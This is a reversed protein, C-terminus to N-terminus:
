RCVFYFQFADAVLEGQANTTIHFASQIMFNNDPGTGIFRFSDVETLTIPLGGSGINMLMQTLGVARYKIGSTLGVGEMGQPQFHLMLHQGGNGDVVLHMIIHLTGSAEVLEGSCPNNQNLTFPVKMEVMSTSAPAATVSAGVNRVLDNRVLRQQQSVMSMPKMMNEKSSEKNHMWLLGLILLALVLVVWLLNLTKNSTDSM